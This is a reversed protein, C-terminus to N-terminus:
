SFAIKTQNKGFYNYLWIPMITFDMALMILLLLVGTESQEYAPYTTYLNLPTLLLFTGCLGMAKGAVIPAIQQMRKTLLKSGLFILVGAIFLGVHMEMHVSENMVAANFNSPLDWYVILLAAGAFTLVGRRNIESSLRQMSAYTRFVKRKSLRSGVLTLSDFGWGLMFGAAMFFFHQVVMHATLTADLLEGLSGFMLLLLTSGVLIAALGKRILPKLVDNRYWGRAEEMTLGLPVIRNLEESALQENSM